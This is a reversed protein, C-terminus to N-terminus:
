NSGKFPRYDNVGNGLIAIRLRELLKSKEQGPEGMIGRGRHTCTNMQTRTCIHTCAPTCIGM